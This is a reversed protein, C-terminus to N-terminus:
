FFIFLIYTVSIVRLIRPIIGFYIYKTIPLGFAGSFWGFPVYPIPGLASILLGYQGYKRYLKLYKKCKKEKYVYPYFKKGIKYNLFSAITSGIITLGAALVLNLELTNAAILPVEPGLPQALIDVIFAVLFIAIYGYVSILNFIESKLQNLFILFILFILIVFLSAIGTIRMVKFKAM